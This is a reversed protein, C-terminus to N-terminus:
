LSYLFILFYSSFRKLSLFFIGAQEEETEGEDEKRKEVAIQLM